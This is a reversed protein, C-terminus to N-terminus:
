WEGESIGSQRNTARRSPWSEWNCRALTIEAAQKLFADGTATAQGRSRQQAVSIIFVVLVIISSALMSRSKM